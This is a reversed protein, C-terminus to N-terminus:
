LGRRPISIWDASMITGLRRGGLIHIPRRTLDGVYRAAPWLINWLLIGVALPALPNFRIAEAWRGHMLFCVGRTLGCGPCPIGLLTKWICLAPGTQCYPYYFWATSLVAVAFCFEIHEYVFSTLARFWTVRAIRIV